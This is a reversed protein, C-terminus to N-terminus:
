CTHHCWMFTLVVSHIKLFRYYYGIAGSNSECSVDWSDVSSWRDMHFGNFWFIAGREEQSTEETNPNDNEWFNLVQVTLDLVQEIMCTLAYITTGM